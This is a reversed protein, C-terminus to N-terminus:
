LRAVASEQRHAPKGSMTVAQLELGEVFKPPNEKTLEEFSCGSLRTYPIKVANSLGEIFIGQPVNAISRGGKANKRAQTLKDYSPRYGGM